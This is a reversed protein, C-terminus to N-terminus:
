AFAFCAFLITRAASAQARAYALTAYTGFFYISLRMLGGFRGVRGVRCVFARWRMASSFCSSSYQSDTRLSLGFESLGLCTPRRM